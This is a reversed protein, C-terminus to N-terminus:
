ESLNQEVLQLLDQSLLQSFIQINYLDHTPVQMIKNFLLNVKDLIM